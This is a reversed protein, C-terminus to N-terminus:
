RPAKQQSKFVLLEFLLSFFPCVFCVRWGPHAGAVQNAAAAAEILMKEEELLRAHIQTKATILSRLESAKREMREKTAEHDTDDVEIEELQTEYSLIKAELAEIKGDLKEM